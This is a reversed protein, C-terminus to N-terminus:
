LMSTPEVSVISNPVVKNAPSRSTSSLLYARYARKSNRQGCSAMRAGQSGKSSLGAWDYSDGRVTLELPRNLGISPRTTPGEM